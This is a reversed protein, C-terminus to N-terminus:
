RVGLPPRRWPHIHKNLKLLDSIPPHKSDALLPTPPFPEEDRSSNSRQTCIGGIHEETDFIANCSVHGDFIDEGWGSIM